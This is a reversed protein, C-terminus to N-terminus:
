KKTVFILLEVVKSTLAVTILYSSLFDFFIPRWIFSGFQYCLCPIGLLWVPKLTNGTKINGKEYKMEYRLRDRVEDGMRM